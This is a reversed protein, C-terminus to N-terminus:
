KLLNAIEKRTNRITLKHPILKLRYALAFFIVTLFLAVILEAGTNVQIVHEFDIPAEHMEPCITKVAFYYTGDEFEGSWTTAGGTVQALFTLEGESTGSYISYTDTGADAEWNLTIWGDETGVGSLNLVETPMCVVAPAFPTASAENSLSSMIKGNADLAIVAFYYKQGNVLNYATAKPTSDATNFMDVYKGSEIGIYVTYRSAKEYATWTLNVKASDAEAKLNLVPPAIPIASAENSLSSMIKGNADLAIVTFYYRQGNILGYATAKSTADPTAFGTTYKGAEIGIYVFYKSANEYKQWKLSVEANGPEASLNLVPAPAFPTASVEESKGTMPYGDGDLATIVFFYTRGNILDKITNATVPKETDVSEFYEGTNIGYEILYSSAGETALWTLDVKANGAKAVVGYVGLYRVDEVVKVIYANPNETKNGLQDVLTVDIPYNGITDPTAMLVTYTGPTEELEKLTYSAKNFVATVSALNPDTELYLTFATKVPLPDKPDIYINEIQAGTRDVEVRVKASELDGSKAQFIHTGDALGTATWSYDGDSTVAVTQLKSNNDYLDVDTLPNAKGSLVFTNTTYTGAQPTLLTVAGAAPLKDTVIISATGLVAPDDWDTATVTHTGKTQFRIALEFEHSGLDEPVFTYKQPITAEPDTTSFYVTGTYNSVTKGDVDVATIVFSITENAHAQAPLETIELRSVPGYLENNTSTTGLFSASLNQSLKDGGIADIPEVFVVKPRESLILGSTPSLISYTSVGTKESSIAFQIKGNQDTGTTLARINDEARSSILNVIQNALPNQYQDKLEVDIMIESRGDAEVSTDSAEATSYTDSLDDPYVKFSHYTSFNETDSTRVAVQYTGAQRTHYGYLDLRAIGDEETKTPMLLETKDPKIVKFNVNVGANTATTTLMASYGAITDVGYADIQRSAQASLPAFVLASMVLSSVIKAIKKYLNQM